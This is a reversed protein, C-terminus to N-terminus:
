WNRNYMDYLKCACGVLLTLVPLVALFGLAEM